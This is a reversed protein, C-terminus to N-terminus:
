FDGGAERYKVCPTWSGLPRECGRCSIQGQRQKCYTSVVYDFIKANRIAFSIEDAILLLLLRDEESFSRGGAKNVASMVGIKEEGATLPVVIMDRTRFGSDSDVRGYFRPDSQVDNVIEAEQSRLVHGALGKSAPFVAGTLATKTDGECEYFRLNEKEDDLLMVSAEEAEAAEKCCYLAAGILEHLGLSQSLMSSVTVYTNLRFIEKEARVQGLLRILSDGVLSVAEEWEPGPALSTQGGDAYGALAVCEEGMTCPHIVVRLASGDSIPSPDSALALEQFREACTKEIADALEAELGFSFWERPSSSVQAVYLFVGGSPVIEALLPLCGQALERCDRAKLATKALQAFRLVGSFSPETAQPGTAPPSM